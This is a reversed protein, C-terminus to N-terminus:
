RTPTSGDTTTPMVARGSRADRLVRVVAADIDCRPDKTVYVRRVVEKASRNTTLIMAEAESLRMGMKVRDEDAKIAARQASAMRAQADRIAVKADVLKGADVRWQNVTWGAILLGAALLAYLAARWQSAIAALITM